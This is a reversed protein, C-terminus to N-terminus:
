GEIFVRQGQAELAKYPAGVSRFQELLTREVQQDEAVEDEIMRLYAVFLSVTHQEKVICLM